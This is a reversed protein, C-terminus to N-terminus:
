VEEDLRSSNGESDSGNETGSFDDKLKSTATSKAFASSGLYHDDDKMGVLKVHGKAMFWAINGLGTGEACFCLWIIPRSVPNSLFALAFSNAIVRWALSAVITTILAGLAGTSFVKQVSDSVGFINEGSGSFSIIRAIAFVIMTQFIQRGVLFAELNQGRFVVECNRKAIPFKEIDEVPMRLVAMLAIQLGDMWGVTVVLVVFIITSAYPPIAEGINTKGQYLATFSAIFAFILLCISVVVQIWFIISREKTKKGGIREAIWQVLYVSHVIGSCEVFFALYTTAVLVRNNLADLMYKSSNIQTVLQGYIITVVVVSISSSFFITTVIKPFGDISAGKIAGVLFNITYVCMLDLYQRGVIFREVNGNRHALKTCMYTFKHTQRYAAPDVPVLGIMSNLAGELIALWSLTAWFLFCALYPNLGYISTVKTQKQFTATTLLFISFTFFAFSFLTKIIRLTRRCITEPSPPDVSKGKNVHHLSTPLNSVSLNTTSENETCKSNATPVGLISVEFSFDNTNEEDPASALSSSSDLSSTITPPSMM